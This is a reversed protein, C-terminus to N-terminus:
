DLSWMLVPPFKDIGFYGQKQFDVLGPVGPKGFNYLIDARAKSSSQAQCTCSEWIIHFIWRIKCWIGLKNNTELNEIREVDVRNVTIYSNPNILSLCVSSSTLNAIKEIRLHMSNGIRQTYKFGWICFCLHLIIIFKGFLPCKNFSSFTRVRQIIQLQWKTHFISLWIYALMHQCCLMLSVHNGWSSGFSTIFYCINQNLSIWMHFNFYDSCFNYHSGM